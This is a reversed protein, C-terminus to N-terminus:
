AAMRQRRALVVAGAGVVLVVMVILGLTGVAPVGSKAAPFVILTWSVAKNVTIPVIGTFGVQLKVDMTGGPIDTAWSGSITDFEGNPVSFQVGLKFEPMNDGIVPRIRGGVSPDVGQLTVSWTIFARGAPLTVTKVSNPIDGFDGSPDTFDFLGGDWVFLNEVVPAQAEVIQSALSVFVVLVSAFRPM